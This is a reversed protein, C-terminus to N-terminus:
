VAQHCLYMPTFLKSLTTLQYHLLRSDFERGELWLDLARIVLSGLWGLLLSSLCIQKGLMENNVCLQLMLLFFVGVATL